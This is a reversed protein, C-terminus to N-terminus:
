ALLREKVTRRLIKGSPNRPLDTVFTYGVPIKFDAIRGKLFLLLQRPTAQQEAKLLVCAHVAEGWQEHPVGVVAVDAVAPHESLAREVEAPYINQAAVIITDNLRDCLFLYGNEDLYGADGMHLWDGVLTKATAEPLNWYGLMRAGTRICVQGIEGPPLVAGHGDVVKLEVGPCALGASRMVPSGPVHDVPRLCVAVSGTETSAYIQAFECRMLEICQELLAESIPAAGYTVKRLSAFTRRSVGPENLLIQLMAPAMYTVTVAHREIAEVADQGVFTRLVVNPVGAVFGHMFWAFGAIHFGPLAILSVDGPRWDIWEAIRDGAAEPFAFFSRHALVAGKPMGTTGSTYLQVVADDRTTGPDLDTDPSGAAWATVGEGRGGDGDVQVVAALNPLQDRVRAVVPLYEREAFLLVADSDRLIHDVEPATLRWNIPVLVAAAKACALALQYYHESEKGLFAVRGGPRVGAALLAHAMRNSGRHLEGFTVRRDECLVAVEDPRAAANAASAATLTDTRAM